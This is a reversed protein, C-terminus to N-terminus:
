AKKGKNEFYLCLAVSALVLFSGAMSITNGTKYVSPEFKFEVKHKGAAIPMGRLVYNVAVHPMLTGDVYANWGAPYYIESFVAFQADKADTEYVLDNPKYSLLKISGEGNYNPEVKAQEKFKTQMIAQTKTNIDYLGVIEKNATEAFKVERVFWANGNAMKNEIPVKQRGDKGGPMIFWKTNLMNLTGLKSMLSDLGAESSVSNYFGEALTRMDKDIHFEILEAYKKLKAGHYGGISKHWYSTKSENFCADMGDSMNLVRYDLAPDQLIKEDAETKEFQGQNQSKTVFSKESLYRSDVMWMDIVIFIGLAAFLLEKKLKKNLYLYLFLAALTIFVFSRMADSTFIERRAIEMQPLLQSVYNKVQEETGSRSFGQILEAEENTGHFTNVLDPMIYSIACFGGTLAFSIILVKKLDLEKKFITIKDNLSRAKLLESVALIALVPLTFEPIVIAMSVARFKNYGPIFDMFFNTFGMFNHGWSLFIGLVTAIVLPWKLKNKVVFLSLVALFIIIAGMYVAGGTGPQDGFYGGMGGVQERFDPSVKKLSKPDSVGIPVYSSGGKFDPIMFTFTEGIGQSWRTAYERDLGSTTNSENSKGQANITLETKGRTSYKGYEATCMLSAANPLVGIICAIVIFATAKFFSPLTKEKFAYYFYSLGIVAIVLFGYYTIQPHGANLELAMFLVTLATGLWYRGKFILIIGAIWAPLYAIAHTKSNHGAGLILFVYSSLGYALAGVMALWPDIDLALLLIFFGLFCLFLYGSPHPLFLKFVKDITGMWNGPYLTSIQYAPMGGFMSNTWLPEGGEKERFDAIEKSMGKHQTIDHQNLEKGSLLPKFYILTLVAFLAIAAIHPIFNKIQFNM